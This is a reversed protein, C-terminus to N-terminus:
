ATMLSYHHDLGDLPKLGGSSLDITFSEGATEQRTVGFHGLNDARLNFGFDVYCADPDLFDTPPVFYLKAGSISGYGTIYIAVEVKGGPTVDARPRRFVLDYCGPRDANPKNQHKPMKSLDLTKSNGPGLESGHNDKSMSMGVENLSSNGSLEGRAGIDTQSSQTGGRMSIPNRPGTSNNPFYPAATDNFAKCRPCQLVVNVIQSLPVGHILVKRCGGCAYERGNAGGRFFIFDPDTNQSMLVARTGQAPESIVRLDIRYPAQGIQSSAASPSPKNQRLRKKNSMHLNKNRSELCYGAHLSDNNPLYM